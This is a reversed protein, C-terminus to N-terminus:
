NEELVPALYYHIDGSGESSEENTGKSIPSIKYVVQLPMNETFLLEVKDSLSTAKAFMNLYNLQFTQEMEETEEGKNIFIGNGRKLTVCAKGIDGESAIVIKNGGNLHFNLHDGVNMLDKCLKEFEKSPMSLIYDPEIDPIQHDEGEIELCHLEFESTKNGDKNEFTIDMKISGNERDEISIEVSDNPNACKLVLGLTKLSVGVVTPTELEYEKFFEPPLTLNLMSVHSSDMTMINLGNERFELNTESVIQSICDVINKLTSVKEFVVTAM